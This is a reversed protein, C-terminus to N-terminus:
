RGGGGRGGHGGRGRGGRGGRGRRGRGGGGREVGLPAEMEGGALEAAHHWKLKRAQLLKGVLTKVKANGLSSVSASLGSQIDREIDADVERNGKAVAAFYALERKFPSAGQRPIYLRRGDLKKDLALTWRSECIFRITISRKSPIFIVHGRDFADHLNKPVLLYNRPEKYFEPPLALESCADGWNTYSAPWIHALTVEDFSRLDGLMDRLQGPNGKVTLGYFKATTRKFDARDEPAPFRTAATPSFASISDSHHSYAFPNLRDLLAAMEFAEARAADAFSSSM